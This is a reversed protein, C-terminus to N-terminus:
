GIDESRAASQMSECLFQCHDDPISDKDSIKQESGDGQDANLDSHSSSPLSGVNSAPVRNTHEFLQLKTDNLGNETGESMWSYTYIVLQYRTGYDSIRDMEDGSSCYGDDFRGYKM